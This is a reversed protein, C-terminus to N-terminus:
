PSYTMTCTQEGRFYNTSNCTVRALAVASAAGCTADAVIAHRRVTSCDVNVRQAVIVSHARFNEVVAADDRLEVRWIAAALDLIDHQTKGVQLGVFGVASDVAEDTTVRIADFPAEGDIAMVIIERGVGVADRQM